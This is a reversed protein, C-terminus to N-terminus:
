EPTFGTVRLHGLLGDVLPVTALEGPTFWRADDADDGAHLTGGVSESAFGHIEYLRGDGTPVEVTWLEREISVALGTEELVERVTAEELSEGAEVKGGPVSWRGRSPERGRQILLIRGAGDVIVAGVAVVSETVIGVM